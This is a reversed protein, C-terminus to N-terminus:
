GVQSDLTKYPPLPEAKLRERIRRATRYIRVDKLFYRVVFSCGVFLGSGVLVPVFTNETAGLYTLRAFIWLGYGFIASACIASYIMFVTDFWNIKISIKGGAASRVFTAIKNVEGPAVLSFECLYMLAAADRDGAKVGSAIKFIESNIVQRLFKHQQSDVDTLPLLEVMRRLHRRTIYDYHFDWAGRVVKLVAGFASLGGVLAALPWYHYMTEPMPVDM